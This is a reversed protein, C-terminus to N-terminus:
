RKFIIDLVGLMNCTLILGATDWTLDRTFSFHFEFGSIFYLISCVLCIKVFYLRSSQSAADTKGSRIYFPRTNHITRWVNWDNLQRSDNSIHIMRLINFIDHIYFRFFEVIRSFPQYHSLVIKWYLSSNDQEVCPFINM